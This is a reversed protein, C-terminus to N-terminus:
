KTVTARLFGKGALGDSSTLRFTHMQYGGNDATPTGVESVAGTFNVLDTTGQIAYTLGAVTATMSGGTGATFTAGTRVAVTMTLEKKGNADTDTLASTIAGRSAASKPDGNFAFETLNNVGDKDFDGTGTQTLDGFKAIEWADDMGDGDTDAVGSSTAGFRTVVLSDIYTTNHSGSLDLSYVGMLLNASQADLFSPQASPTVVVDNVKMEWVGGIRSVELTMSHAANMQQGPFRVSDTDINGNTNTGYAETGNIRGFRTLATVSAGVFVGSQDNGPAAPMNVFKARAKFDGTPTVGVSSLPIGLAEFQAMGIQNNVDATGSKIALTGLGTTDLTLNPDNPLYTADTGSGPLRQLGIVKGTADTIGSTGTAKFDLNLSIDTIGDGNVDSPKSAANNPDSGAIYEALNNFGDGDADATPSTSLNLASPFNDAEWRDDMGDNDGDGTPSGPDLPDNPNTNALFEAKDTFGDRDTDSTATAQTLNGFNALEWGDSIGDGAPSGPPTNPETDPFSTRSTPNSGAAFEDRNVSLDNDSDGDGDQDLNDFYTYEWADALGDGDTDLPTISVDNAATGAAMEHINNFGDGDYDDTAKQTLVNNFQAKEWADPMKDGDTDAIAPVGPGQVQYADRIAEPLLGAWIRVEDYSANATAD